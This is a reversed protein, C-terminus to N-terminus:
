KDRIDMIMGEIYHLIHGLYNAAFEDSKYDWQWSSIVKPKSRKEEYFKHLLRRIVEQLQTTIQIEVSSPILRTGLKRNPIEFENFVHIHIAYYGEEKAEKNIECKNECENRINNEFYEVGDLYKVVILTRLVDNIRSFWNEPVYFGKEPQQPWYINEVVNKRYTKDIFSTFPKILLVISNSSSSYLEYGNKEQYYQDHYYPLKTTLSKWFTSEQFQNKMSLTVSDYYSEYGSNFGYNDELWKKYEDFSIKKALM